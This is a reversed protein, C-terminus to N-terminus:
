ALHNSELTNLFSLKKVVRHYTVGIINLAIRKVQSNLSEKGYFFSLFMEFLYSLTTFQLYKLKNFLAFFHRIFACAEDIGRNLFGLESIPTYIISYILCIKGPACVRVLIQCSKGITFLQM